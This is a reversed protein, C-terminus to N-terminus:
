IMEAYSTAQKETVKMFIKFPIPSVSKRVGGNVGDDGQFVEVCINRIMLLLSMFSPIISKLNVSLM